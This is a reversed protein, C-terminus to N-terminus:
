AAAFALRPAHPARRGAADWRGAPGTDVISEPVVIAKVKPLL